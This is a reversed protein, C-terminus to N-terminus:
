GGGQITISEGAAMFYNAHLFYAWTVVIWRGHFTAMVSLYM